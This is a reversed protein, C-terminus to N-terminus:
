PVPLGSPVVAPRLAALDRASPDTLSRLFAVLEGQEAASLLLPQKRRCPPRISGQSIRECTTTTICWRPSFQNGESLPVNRIPIVQASGAGALTLLFLIVFSSRQGDRRRPRLAVLGSPHM